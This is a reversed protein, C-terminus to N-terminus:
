SAVAQRVPFLDEILCGFHSALKGANEVTIDGFQGRAVNSLYSQTFGLTDAISRQTEESLEIARAVRNGTPGFPTQRLERLKKATLAM